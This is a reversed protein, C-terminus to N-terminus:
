SIYFAYQMQREPVPNVQKIRNDGSADMKMNVTYSGEEKHSCFISNYIHIVNEKDGERSCGPQNLLKAASNFHHPLGQHALIEKTHQNPTRQTFVCAHHLQIM